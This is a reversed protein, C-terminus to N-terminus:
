LQLPFLFIEETYNGKQITPCIPLTLAFPFFILHLTM